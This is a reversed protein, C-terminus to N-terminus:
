LHRGALKTEAFGNQLTHLRNRFGSDRNGDDFGRYFRLNWSFAANQYKSDVHGAIAAKAVVFQLVRVLCDDVVWEHEQGLGIRQHDCLFKCFAIFESYVAPDSKHGDVALSM